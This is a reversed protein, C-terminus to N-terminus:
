EITNDTRKAPGGTLTSMFIMAPNKHINEISENGLNYFQFHAREMQQRRYFHSLIIIADCCKKDTDSLQTEFRDITQIRNISEESFFLFKCKTM